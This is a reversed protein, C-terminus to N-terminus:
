PTENASGAQYFVPAEPATQILAEAVRNSGNWPAPLESPDIERIITEVSANLESGVGLGHAYGKPYNTIIAAAPQGNKEGKLIMKGGWCLGSTPLFSLSQLTNSVDVFVKPAGTPDLWSDATSLVGKDYCSMKMSLPYQTKRGSEKDSFTVNPWPDSKNEPHIYKESIAFPTSFVREETKRSYKEVYFRLITSDTDTSISAVGEGGLLELVPKGETTTLAFIRTGTGGEGWLIIAHKMCTVSFLSWAHRREPDRWYSIPHGNKYLYFRAEWANDIDRLYLQVDDTCRSALGSVSEQWLYGDEEEAPNKAASQDEVMESTEAGLRSFSLQPSGSVIWFACNLFVICGFTKNFGIM